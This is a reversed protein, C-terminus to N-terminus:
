KVFFYVYLWVIIIYMVYFVITCHNTNKDLIECVNIFMHPFDGRCLVWFIIYKLESLRRTGWM